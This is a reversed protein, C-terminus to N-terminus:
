YFCHGHWSPQLNRTSEAIHVEVQWAQVVQELGVLVDASAIAAYLHCNGLSVEQLEGKMTGTPPQVAQNKM